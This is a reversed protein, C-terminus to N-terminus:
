FVVSLRKTSPVCLEREKKTDVQVPGFQDHVGIGKIRKPKIPFTGNSVANYLTKRNVDLMEALSDYTYYKRM